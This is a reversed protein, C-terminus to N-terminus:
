VNPDTVTGDGTPETVGGSGDDVVGGTTDDPDITGAAAISTDQTAKAANLDDIAAQIDAAQPNDSLRAIASDIGAQVDTAGQKVAAAADRLVQAVSMLDDGEEHAQEIAIAILGIELARQQLGEQHGALGALRALQRQVESM